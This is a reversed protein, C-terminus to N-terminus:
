VEIRQVFIGSLHRRASFALIVWLLATFSALQWGTSSILLHFLLINVVVPGLIVIALVVYRNVLLLAGGIV